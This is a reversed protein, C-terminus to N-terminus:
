APRRLHFIAASGTIVAINVLVLHTLKMIIPSLLTLTVAGAVATILVCAALRGLWIHASAAAPLLHKLRAAAIVVTLPLLLGLLPHLIRLRVAPHSAASLDKSLGELISVSPALHTGLSAIAGSILMLFLSVAGVAIWRRVVPKLALRERTGFAISEATMVCAFLLLSTNVLHLPMVILRKQAISQDVLGLLVLQAGILAETITFVLVLISWLRAPHYKPLM